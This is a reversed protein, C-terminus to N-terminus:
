KSKVTQPLDKAISPFVVSAYGILWFIGAVLPSGIMCGAILGIIGIGLSSLMIRPELFISYGFSGGLIAFVFSNSLWPTNLVIWRNEDNLSICYTGLLLVVSMVVLFKITNISSKM